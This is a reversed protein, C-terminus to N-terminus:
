KQRVENLGDRNRNCEHRLVDFRQLHKPWSNVEVNMVADRQKLGGIELLITDLKSDLKDELRLYKALMRQELRDYHEYGYETARDLQAAIFDDKTSERKDAGNRYADIKNLAWRLAWGAFALAVGWDAFSGGM